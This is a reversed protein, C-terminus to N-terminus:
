LVNMDGPAAGGSGAAPLNESRKKRWKSLYSQLKLWNTIAYTPM